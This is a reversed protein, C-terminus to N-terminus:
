NRSKTEPTTTPSNSHSASEKAVYPFAKSTNGSKLTFTDASVDQLLIGVPVSEGPFTVLITQGVALTGGSSLIILRNQGAILPGSPKLQDAVQQLQDAISLRAPAAPTSSSAATSAPAASAVPAPPLKPFFPNPADKLHPLQDSNTRDLFTKIVALLKERLSLSLVEGDKPPSFVYWSGSSPPPPPPPPPPASDTPADAASLAGAAALLGAVVLTTPHSSIGLLRFFKM